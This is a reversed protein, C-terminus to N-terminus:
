TPKIQMCDSVALRTEELPSDKKLEGVQDCSSQSLYQGDLFSEIKPLVSIIDPERERQAEEM